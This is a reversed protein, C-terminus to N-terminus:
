IGHTHSVELTLQEGEPQSNRGAGKGTQGLAPPAALQAGSSRSGEPIGLSSPISRAALLEWGLATIEGAKRPMGM